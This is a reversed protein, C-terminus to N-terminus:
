RREFEDPVPGTREARGASVRNYVRVRGTAESDQRETSSDGRSFDSIPQDAPIVDGPVRDDSRSAAREKSEGVRHGEYEPAAEANGGRTRGEVDVAGQLEMIDAARDADDDADAQVAVLAMGQQLHNDYLSADKEPVGMKTLTGVVGGAAAGLGAGGLASTLATAIPGAAILGGLGPIMLGALGAILGSAGGLVAGVRAGNGMRNTAESTAERIQEHDADRGLLSIQDRNFAANSLREVAAQAESLNEFLGIVNPM